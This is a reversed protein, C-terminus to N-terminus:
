SMSYINTHIEKESRTGKSKRGQIKGPKHEKEHNSRTLLPLLDPSFSRQHSTVTKLSHM